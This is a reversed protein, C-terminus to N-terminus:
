KQKLSAAFRLLDHIIAYSANMHPPKLHALEAGTRRKEDYYRQFTGTPLLTVKLPRISLMSELDKYDQNINVLKEHILKELEKPKIEEKLEIYLRIVPESRVYEKRTSWDEYKVGTNAIAQWITKEDLRTFGAIDILDDARSEFVMQPLKIGAENDELAVVKILDGLRYRLLPMGYFNSIIVEYRNGPKVEDLLITRPQYDKNERSKLWEEEPAFELFCCSPVFTMNKKNWAHAAIIGADTSGYTEFPEKGWYHILQDRYIATDTGYCLLGKVPWLDKPLLVRHERKAQLLARLLRWMIQPHLMRRSFKFQGSSETFREGIKLLVSTLSSLFDVGTRLAIQLGTQTRTEFDMLESEKLSPIYHADLHNSVLGALIGTIFPPPPLNHLVRLGNGINVEGKKNTCALISFTTSLVSLNEIARETYPIWKPAGSRGSTRAWCYPKVALVSENKEHLYPAYDDYTTLPVLQRFESVNRPKKPILKRGILSDCILEIQEILLQEQIEMFEVLSLDFFGCYKQWIRRQDGTQFLTYKTLM